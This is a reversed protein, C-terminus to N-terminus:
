QGLVERVREAAELMAIFYGFSMGLVMGVGLALVIEVHHQKTTKFSPM